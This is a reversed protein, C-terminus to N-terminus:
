TQVHEFEVRIWFLLDAFYSLRMADNVEPKFMPQPYLEVSEAGLEDEYTFYAIEEREIWNYEVWDRNFEAV